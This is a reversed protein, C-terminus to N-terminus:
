MDRSSRPFMTTAVSNSSPLSSLSQPRTDAHLGAMIVRIDLNRLKGHGGNISKRNVSLKVVQYDKVLDHLWEETMNAPLNGFYASRRDADYQDFQQELNDQSSRHPTLPAPSDANYSYVMYMSHDRFNQLVNDIIPFM